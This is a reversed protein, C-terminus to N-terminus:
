LTKFKEYDPLQELSDIGLKRILDFSPKYSYANARHADIQRDILGRILLSRLIFSSNVGRINDIEIRNIPGKYAVIALTELSAPSLDEKLV